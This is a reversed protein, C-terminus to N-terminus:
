PYTMRVKEGLRRIWNPLHKFAIRHGFHQSVSRQLRVIYAVGAILAVVAVCLVAIGLILLWNISKGSGIALLVGWVPTLLGATAVCRTAYWGNRASEPGVRPGWQEVFGNGM